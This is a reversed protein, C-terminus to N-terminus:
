DDHGNRKAKLIQDPTAIIPELRFAPDNRKHGRRAIGACKYGCTLRGHRLKGDKDECRSRTRFVVGCVNCVYWVPRDMSAKICVRCRKVRGRSERTWFLVHCQRCRFQYVKGGCTDCIKVAIPKTM